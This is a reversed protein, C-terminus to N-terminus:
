MAKSMKKANVIPIQDWCRHIINVRAKRVAMVISAIIVSIVNVSFRNMLSVPSFDIELSGSLLRYAFTM